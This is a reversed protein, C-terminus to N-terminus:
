GIRDFFMIELLEFRHCEAQLDSSRDLSSSM